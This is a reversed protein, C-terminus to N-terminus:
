EEYAILSQVSCTMIEGSIQRLAYEPVFVITGVPLKNTNHIVECRVILGDGKAEDSVIFGNDTETATIRKLLVFDNLPIIKNAM